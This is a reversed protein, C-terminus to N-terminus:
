RRLLNQNAIQECRSNQDAPDGKGTACDPRGEFVIGLRDGAFQLAHHLISGLAEIHAMTARQFRDFDHSM